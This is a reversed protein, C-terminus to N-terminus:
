FIAFMMKGSLSESIAERHTVLGKQSTSLVLHGINRSPLLKQALKDVESKRCRRPRMYVVKNIRGCLQVHIKGSHGDEIYTFNKIYGLKLLTKCINIINKNNGKNFLLSSKGMKEAHTLSSIFTPVSKRPKRQTAAAPRRRPVLILNDRNM